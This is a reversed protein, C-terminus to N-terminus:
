DGDIVVMWEGLFFQYFDMYYIWYGNWVNQGKKLLDDLNFLVEVEYYKEKMLMVVQFVCLCCGYIEGCDQGICYFEGDYLFFM